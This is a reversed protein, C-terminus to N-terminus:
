SSDPQPQKGRGRRRIWDIVENGWATYSCLLLLWGVGGCLTGMGIIALGALAVTEEYGKMTLFFFYVGGTLITFLFSPLLGFVWWMHWDTWQVKKDAENNLISLFDAKYFAFIVNSAACLLVLLVFLLSCVAAYLRVHSKETPDVSAVINLTFGAFFAGITVGNSLLTSM